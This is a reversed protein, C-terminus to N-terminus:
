QKSNSGNQDNDIDHLAFAGNRVLKGGFMRHGGDKVQLAEKISAQRQEEFVSDENNKDKDKNELSKFNEAFLM